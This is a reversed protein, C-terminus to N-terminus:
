RACKEARDRLFVSEEESFLTAYIVLHDHVNKRVKAAQKLAEITKDKEELQSRYLDVVSKSHRLQQQRQPILSQPQQQQLDQFSCSPM